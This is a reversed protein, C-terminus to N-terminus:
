DLSELWVVVTRGPADETPAAQIVGLRVKNNTSLPELCTPFNLNWPGGNERWEAGAIIYGEGEEAGIEPYFGIATGDINVDAYGEMIQVSNNSSQGIAWFAVAGVIIGIIFAALIRLNNNRM